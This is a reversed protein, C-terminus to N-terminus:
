LLEVKCNFNSKCEDDIKVTVKFAEYDNICQMKELITDRVYQFLNSANNQGDYIELGKNYGHQLYMAIMLRTKKNNKYTAYDESAYMELAEKAIFKFYDDIDEKPIRPLNLQDMLDYNIDHNNTLTYYVSNAISRDPPQISETIGWEYRTLWIAGFAMLEDSGHNDLLRGNVHEILDHAIINSIQKPDDSTAIQDEDLDSYQLEQMTWGLWSEQAPILTGEIIM